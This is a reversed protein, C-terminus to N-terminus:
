DLESLGRKAQNEAPDKPKVSAFLAKEKDSLGFPQLQLMLNDYQEPHEQLLKVIKQEDRSALAGEEAPGSGVWTQGNEDTFMGLVALALSGIGVTAVTMGGLKIWDEYPGKEEEAKKTADAVKAGAKQEVEKEIAASGRIESELMESSLRTEPGRLKTALRELGGAIREAWGEFYPSRRIHTTSAIPSARAGVAALLVTVSLM